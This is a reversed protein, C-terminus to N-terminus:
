QKRSNTCIVEDHQNLALNLQPNKQYKIYQFPCSASLIYHGETRHVVCKLDAM